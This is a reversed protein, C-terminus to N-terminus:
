AGPVQPAVAGSARGLLHGGQDYINGQPDRYQHRAPSYQSGPPVGPPLAGAPIGGPSAPNAAGPGAPPPAAPAPQVAQGPAAQSPAGPQGAVGQRWGPMTADMQRETAQRALDPTASPDRMNASYLSEFARAYDAAKLPQPHAANWQATQVGPAPKLNGTVPQFGGGGTAPMQLPVVTGTDPGGTTVGYLRLTQTAADYLQEVTMHANNAPPGAVQAAQRLDGSQLYAQVFRNAGAKDQGYIREAALSAQGFRQMAGANQLLQPPMNLGALPAFQQLMTMDGKAAATMALRAYVDQRKLMGMDYRSQQGMIQLATAGGGPTNALNQLIPDYRANFSPNPTFMGGSSAPTQDPYISPAAPTGGAISAGPTSSGRALREAYEPISVGNGDRFGFAGDTTLWRQFNGPGAFHTLEVMNDPTLQVGGVNQGVHADLGTSRLWNSIWERRMNMATDQAQDNAFFQQPTMPAQGPLTITGNWSNARAPGGADQSPQYVGIDQLAATGFQYKGGYGYQNLAPAGPPPAEVSSIAANNGPAQANEGMTPYSAKVVPVAPGNGPSPTGVNAPSLPPQYDGAQPAQYYASGGNKMMTGVGQRIATDVGYGQQVKNQQEIFDMNQRIAPDTTDGQLYGTGEGYGFGGGGYGMGYGSM